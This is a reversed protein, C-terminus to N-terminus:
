VTVVTVVTVVTAVTLNDGSDNRDGSISWSKVVVIVVLEEAVIVETYM